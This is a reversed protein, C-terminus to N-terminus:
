RCARARLLARRERACSKSLLDSRTRKDVPSRTRKDVPNRTRKNVILFQFSVIGCAESFLFSAHPICDRGSVEIAVCETLILRGWRRAAWSPARELGLCSNSDGQPCLLEDVTFAERQEFLHGWQSSSM